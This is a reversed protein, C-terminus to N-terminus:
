GRFESASEMFASGASHVRQYHFQAIVFLCHRIDLCFNLLGLSRDETKLSRLRGRLNGRLLAFSSVSFRRVGLARIM